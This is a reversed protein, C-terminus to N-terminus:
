PALPRAAAARDRWVAQRRAVPPRLVLREGAPWDWASRQIVVGRVWFEVELGYLARVRVHLDALWTGGGAIATGCRAILYDLVNSAQSASLEEAIM